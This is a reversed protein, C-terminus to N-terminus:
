ILTLIRSSTLPLALVKRSLVWCFTNPALMSMNFRQAEQNALQMVKRSRDTFREYM